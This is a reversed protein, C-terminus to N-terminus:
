GRWSGTRPTYPYMRLVMGEDAAVAAVPNDIVLRKIQRDDHYVGAGWLVGMGRTTGLRHDRLADLVLKALNDVDGRWPHPLCYVDLEVCITVGKPFSGRLRMCALAVHAQAELTEAPVYSANGTVRVRKMPRPRMGWRMMVAGSAAVTAEHAELACVWQEYGQHDCSHDDLLHRTAAALHRLQEAPPYATHM